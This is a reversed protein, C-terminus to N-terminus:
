KRKKKAPKKKVAKKTVKKKAVKKKAVKKTTSKKKAVVKKATVKPSSKVVKKPARKLSKLAALAFIAFVLMLLLGWTLDFEWYLVSYLSVIFGVIGVILFSASLPQRVFGQEDM